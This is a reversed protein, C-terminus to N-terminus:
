GGELFEGVLVELIVWEVVAWDGVWEKLQLLFETQAPVLLPSASSLRTRM